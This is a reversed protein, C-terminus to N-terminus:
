LVGRGQAQEWAAETVVRDKESQLFSKQRRILDSEILDWDDFSSLGNNYKQRSIKERLEAAELYAQDVKLKQLSQVFSVYFSKLKVVQDKQTSSKTFASARLSELASRTAFYDRGGNFLPVSLTAGVSWRNQDPYWTSGSKATTASLNLSPYFGAEALTVSAKSIEEQAVAIRYSPTELVLNQFNLQSDKLPESVPINGTFNYPGQEEEGLVRALLGQAVYLAQEAQLHDLRADELYAKSLLLSGKNERGGDFRLQVQRLNLERRQLISESLKVYKQAYLLNSVASKLDYSAKAKASQLGAKAVEFNAKSQSVKGSDQFGAFVNQSATLSVAFEESTSQTASVGASVQPYFNSYAGKSTYESSQLSQESAKLEENSERAKQVLESWSLTKEVAIGLSPVLMFVSILTQTFLTIRL